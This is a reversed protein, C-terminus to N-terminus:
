RHNRVLTRLRRRVKCLDEYLDVLANVLAGDFLSGHHMADHILANRYTRFEHYETAMADTIDGHARLTDIKRKLPPTSPKKPEEQGPVFVVARNERDKRLAPLQEGAQVARRDDYMADIRGEILSCLLVIAGMKALQPSDETLTRMEAILRRTQAARAITGQYRSPKTQAASKWRPDLHDFVNDTPRNASRRMPRHSPTSM